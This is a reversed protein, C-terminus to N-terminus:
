NEAFQSNYLEEYFGGKAMLEEHNGQEIINGDKIVLILDASKITSLRHAIVFVTRGHMLADMGSQVIAETRTDISSTAEDLIMVPPDAVAARAISILQRQGQSLGDGGGTLVTDYGNPLMSIFGHANATKAAKICEEDTADLRGYRINEKISSSFLFTDQLMIGMQSRYSELDVDAINNGDVRVQGHVPDYFRSLLSIITTKGAGTPGVLAVKKGPEVVFSVDNLVKRGTDYSFDVKDFTVEGKIKGISPANEASVIDPEIDLIDFIRDAASFNTILTNYFNTLNMIPRWFMGIYMTFAILKGVEIEETRVLNVGVYFVVVTGIGWSLEVLPWFLDNLRIAKMFSKMLESVMEKFNKQTEKEKAFSQVVKMGSFDEHTFANVNSRKSRYVEWRKRSRIEIYFMAATLFPLLMVAALALKVNLIFMVVTVCVLSLLDPLLAQISQNFLNQLANVDGMVRALIKGVPRNDFFTFSLKQIHRYLEDRINVLINNTISSIMTWRKRAAGFAVINIGFLILGILMLGSVDKNKIHTDIAISLLYPNIIEAVMVVLMLIVVGISKWTYPKLYKFLRGIIHSRKRSLTVEDKHITNTSM